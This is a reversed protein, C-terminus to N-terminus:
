GAWTLPLLFGGSANVPNYLTASPAIWGCYGGGLLKVQRGGSAYTATGAAQYGAVFFADSAVAFPTGSLDVSGVGSPAQDCSMAVGLPMSTVETDGQVLSGTSTAFVQDSIDVLLSSPDLRIRIWSTRVSTGSTAGGATYQSFTTDRDGGLELYETPQRAMGACWATWPRAPDGDLYLTYAGDPAGPTAAVVQACTAPTGGDPDTETDPDIGTERGSDGGGTEGKPPRIAVGGASCAALLPLLMLPHM